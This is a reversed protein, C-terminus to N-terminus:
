KSLDRPKPDAVKVDGCDAGLWKGSIKQNVDMSRGQANVHMVMTGNFHEPDLFEVTMTGDSKMSENECNIQIVRKSGSSSVQTAKCTKNKDQGYTQERKLTEATECSRSTTPQAGRGMRSSMMAEVQARQEPTMKALRDEPIAMGPMQMAVSTEWLGPKRPDQAFAIYSLLACGTLIRTIM